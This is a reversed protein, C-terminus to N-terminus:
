TDAAGAHRRSYGSRKFRKIGSSHRRALSIRFAAQFKLSDKIRKLACRSMDRLRFIDIKRRSYNFKLNKGWMLPGNASSGRLRLVYFKYCGQFGARFGNWRSLVFAMFKIATYPTLSFCFKHCACFTVAADKRVNCLEPDPDPLRELRREFGCQM